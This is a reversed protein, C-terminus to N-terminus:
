FLPLQKIDQDDDPHVSKKELEQRKRESFQILAPLKAFDAEVVSRLAPQHLAAAPHYMPVILRGERWGAKGHVKSIRADHFYRVMSFRGLTVIVEPDILAIQRELFHACAALEEPQPDRNNPPRCKVVNCIYVDERRRKMGKVIIDTLLQGARGVFPMGQRDEEGGPAEGVFVIEANPNGVGFVTKTRSRSLGCKTCARVEDEIAGLAALREAADPYEQAAPASPADAARPPCISDLMEAVEPSVLLKGRSRRAQDEILVRVDRLITGLVDKDVNSM